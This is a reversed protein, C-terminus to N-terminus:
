RSSAVLLQRDRALAVGEGPGLSVQAVVPTSEDVRVRAATELKVSVESPEGDM